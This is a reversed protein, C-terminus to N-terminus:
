VSVAKGAYQSGYKDLRHKGRWVPVDKSRSSVPVGTYVKRHHGACYSSGPMKACGCYGSDPERPDGYFFRCQDDEMNVLQFLKAPRPPEPPLPSEPQRPMRLRRLETNFNGKGGKHEGRGRSKTSTPYRRTQRDGNALGMRHLKGIVANRTVNGMRQAIQKASFGEAWLARLQDVRGEQAWYAVRGQQGDFNGVISVLSACHEAINTSLEDKYM